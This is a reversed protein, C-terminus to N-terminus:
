PKEYGEEQSIKDGTDKSIMGGATEPINSLESSSQCDEPRVIGQNPNNKDTRSNSGSGGKSQNQSKDKQQGPNIVDSPSTMDDPLNQGNNGSGSGGNSSDQLQQKIAGIAAQYGDNYDKSHRGM